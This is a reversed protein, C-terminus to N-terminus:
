LIRTLYGKNILQKELEFIPTIVLSGLSKFKELTIFELKTVNM